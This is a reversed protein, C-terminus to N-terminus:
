LRVSTLCNWKSLKLSLRNKSVNGTIYLNPKPFPLALVWRLPNKECSTMYHFNSSSDGMQKNKLLKEFQQWNERDYSIEVGFNTKLLALLPFNTTKTPGQLIINFHHGWSGFYLLLWIQSAPDCIYIMLKVQYFNEPSM